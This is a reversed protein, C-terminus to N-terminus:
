RILEISNVIWSEKEMHYENGCYPCIKQRVADFSGGCGECQVSTISFGPVESHTIDRSVVVDICDGTKKIQGNIESYNIWWTRLFLLIRNGDRKINKLVTGNTYTMELIDSFRPDTTTGHYCTLTEPHDSFVIMRILSILQGEFKDYSFSSDYKKLTNTIQNKTRMWKLLSMHKMGDRDFQLILLIICSLLYGLFGGMFFTAFFATAFYAPLDSLSHPNVLTIVTFFLFIALMCAIITNQIIMGTNSISTNKIFYLNVVRPFLDTIRFKTDCHPCGAELFKVPSLFGCNPCTLTMKETQSDNPTHAIIEYMTQDLERKYLTGEPNSFTLKRRIAEYSMDTTYWASQRSLTATGYSKGKIPLVSNHMQIGKRKLREQQLKLYYATDGDCCEPRKGTHYWANLEEAFKDYMGRGKDWRPIFKQFAKYSVIYKYIFILGLICCVTGVSAFIIKPVPDFETLITSIATIGISTIVAGKFLLMGTPNEIGNRKQTQINPFIGM